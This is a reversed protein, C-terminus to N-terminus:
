HLRKVFKKLDFLQGPCRTGIPNIQQHTRISSVKLNCRKRLAEVLAQLSELQKSTPPSQDFHGTLCIGLSVANLSASALHGGDLQQVWRKGVAVEGDKMGHGNGIVFHYALGNEMHRTNRHYEDMGKVTASPTGSHHIVIYKWRGKRVNAKTIANAVAPALTPVPPSVTTSPVVLRQGPYIASRLTLGNARALTTPNIGFQRAILSLTDHKKVTYTSDDDGEAWANGALLGVALLVALWSGAKRWPDFLRKAM